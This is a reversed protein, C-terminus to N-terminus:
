FIFLLTGVSQCECKRRMAPTKERTKRAKRQFSRKESVASKCARCRPQFGSRSKPNRHFHEESMRLVQGCEGICRQTGEPLREDNRRSRRGKKEGRSACACPSEGCRACTSDVKQRKPGIEELESVARVFELWERASTPWLECSM